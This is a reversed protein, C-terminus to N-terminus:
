SSSRSSRSATAQRRPASTTRHQLRLGAPLSCRRLWGGTCDGGGPPVSKPTSWKGPSCQTFAYRLSGEHRHEIVTGARSLQELVVAVHETPLKTIGALDDPDMADAVVALLELVALASGDFGALETRIWRALREPVRDVAPAHVDADYEALAELLGVAFCPNGQTHATLWDVLAAPVRDQGLHRGGAGSYRAPVVPALAIRRIRADQELAHLAELAIRSKALEAPRATALVFLRRAECHEPRPIRSRVSYVVAQCARAPLSM